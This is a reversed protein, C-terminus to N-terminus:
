DQITQKREVEHSEKSADGVQSVYLRGVIFFVVRAQECESRIWKEKTDPFLVRSRFFFAARINRSTREKKKKERFLARLCTRWTSVCWEERSTRGQDNRRQVGFGLSRRVRHMNSGHMTRRCSPFVFFSARTCAFTVMKWRTEKVHACVYRLSQNWGNGCSRTDSMFRSLSLVLHDSESLFTKSPFSSIMDSSSASTTRMSNLSPCSCM